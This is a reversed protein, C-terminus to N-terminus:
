SPGLSRHTRKPFMKQFDDESFDNLKKEKDYFSLIENLSMGMPPREMLFGDESPALPKFGFRRYWKVLDYTNPNQKLPDGAEEIPDATLCVPLSAKDTLSLLKAMLATGQGRHSPPLLIKHLWVHDNEVYFVLEGKPKPWTRSMESLASRLDFKKKM